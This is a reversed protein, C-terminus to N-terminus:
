ADLKRSKILLKHRALLEFLYDRGVDLHHEQLQPQILHYLKRTGLRPLSQRVQEILQLIIDDRLITDKARWQHDYYAHRTKGFLKCLREVGIAPYDQRM